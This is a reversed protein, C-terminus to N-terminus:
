GLFKLIKSWDVNKMQKQFAKLTQALILGKVPNLADPDCMLAELSARAYKSVDLEAEKAAAKVKEKFEPTCRVQILVEKNKSVNKM